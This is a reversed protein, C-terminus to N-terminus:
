SGSRPGRTSRDTPQQHFTPMEGVAPQFTMGGTVPNAVPLKVPKGKYPSQEQMVKTWPQNNLQPPCPQLAQLGPPPAEGEPLDNTVSLSRVHRVLNWIVPDNFVFVVAGTDKDRDVNGYWSPMASPYIGQCIYRFLQADTRNYIRNYQALNAPAPMLNRLQTADHLEHNGTKGTHLPGDAKGSSGHCVACNGGFIAAVEPAKANPKRIDGAGALYRAYFLVAWRDDRNLTNKFAVPHGAPLVVRRENTPMVVEPAKGTTLFLYLDIPTTYAMDEKVRQVQWFDKAHCQACQQKFLDRGRVLSPPASPFGFDEQVLREDLMPHAALNESAQSMRAEQQTCGSFLTLAALALTLSLARVFGSRSSIQKKLPFDM